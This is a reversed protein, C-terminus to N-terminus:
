AEIISSYGPWGTGTQAGGNRSATYFDAYRPPRLFHFSFDDGAAKGLFINWKQPITLRLSAGILDNKTNTTQLFLMDNYYPVEVEACKNTTNTFTGGLMYWGKQDILSVVGLNPMDNNHGRIHVKVRISGRWFRYIQGWKELGLFKQNPQPLGGSSDYAYMTGSAPAAVGPNYYPQYRHIVERVTRYKEGIVLNSTDYAKMTPHFPQFSRSFDARPNSQPIFDPIIYNDYYGGVEFDSAAAVYTNIYIPTTLAMDPQSWTLFKILLGTTQGDDYRRVINQDVYPITWEFECSGQIDIVTHYCNEWVSGGVGNDPDLYVVARISHFISAEIYVKVKISGWGYAFNRRVWDFYTASYPDPEDNYLAYLTNLDSANIVLPNGVLMPTGLVYKLDMEDINFGGVNPVVTIANEPDMCLKDSNDLGKGFNFGASVVLANKNGTQVSTPKSLGLTRAVTAVGKAIDSYTDVYQRMFPVSRLTSALQTTKILANSIVGKESKEKGEKSQTEFAAAAPAYAHPLFLEPELFQATIFVSCSDAGADQVNVLPNLVLIKVKAIEGLGYKQVQLARYPSIFPIDFVVADGSSASAIVHPYGSSGVVFDTQSPVSDIYAPGLAFNVCPEYHMILKGYLFRNSTIRMTIRIGGRFFKFDKIKEAIFSQSFLIDPFYYQALVTNISQGTNWSITGIRYERSLAGNLDYTELNCVQHPQQFVESGGASTDIPSIDQYSGLRVQQSDQPENTARDTFEEHRSSISNQVNDAISIENFKVDKSQTVFFSYMPKKKLPHYKSDHYYYYTHIESEFFSKLHPTRENVVNRLMTIYKDFEEKTFHSMELAFCRCESMLVVNEPVQSKYWYTAEVVVDLNLPAKCEGTDFSFKRGLYRIDTLTDTGEFIDKSWHTYEIGFRRMYHSSLSSSSIGPVSCTIVNDDGYVCMEFQDEMLNLDETLIIFTMAINQLSNYIATFFNGSPNSDKVYYLKDGCIHLANFIHEFLLKRVRKNVEGDDYWMNIFKLIIRGIYARVRGDFRSYDGAIVSGKHKNLRLYLYLWDRSHANIGVNIPKVSAQSQVYSSFDLFYKRGLFLYHLPCSSFLRAKGKEVKERPLTEDKLIDAWVVEIQKGNRLDEEMNDLIVLFEDSFEFHDEDRELFPMKGKTRGLCYPYGPSTSMSISTVEGDNMGNLCEYFSFLRNQEKPPYLKMFYAILAEENFPVPEMEEQVFKNLALNLPSVVEGQKNVFDNLHTPIKKPEGYWGYFSSRKFKTRRPHFFAKEPAVLSHVKLPFETINSQTTFSLISNFFSKTFTIATSYKSGKGLHMGIVYVQGQKGSIAVVSGSQGKVTDYYYNLPHEMVFTTGVSEYSIYSTNIAKTATMITTENHEDLHLLNIPYGQVIDFVDKDEIVYKYIAPPLNQGKPLRCIVMDQPQNEENTVQIPDDFEHITCVGNKWTMCFEVADGQTVSLYFHAPMVIYGDKLHFANTNECKYSQMSGDSQKKFSWAEIHVVSNIVKNLASMYFNREDSNTVFERDVKDLKRIKATRIKGKHTNSPHRVNFKKDFTQTVLQPFLFNYVLNGFSSCSYIILAVLIFFFIYFFCMQEENLNEFYNTICWGIISLRDQVEDMLNFKSDNQTHFIQDLFTPTYKYKDNMEIQVKRLRIIERVLEKANYHKGEMSIDFNCKDVRFVNDHAYAECKQERHLVLHFRRVMAKPDTLGVCFACKEIGNNAINTSGFIFDSDFFVTGKTGFAQPLNFTSTNVMSIVSSAEAARKNVDQEMFMDDLEVFKQQAYKEWFDDNKNYVYVMEPSFITEYFLHSLANEFFKTTASKGVEPPGTFLIFFPETRSHTTGLLSSCMKSTKELKLYKLSFVKQLFSPMTQMQSDRYLSSAFDFKEIVENMLRKDTIFAEDRQPLNDVYKIIDYLNQAFSSFNSDLPDYCIFTRVIMRCISVIMEMSETSLKKVHNMYVFQANAQRLDAETMNKLPTYSIFNVFNSFADKFLNDSQIEFNDGFKEEFSTNDENNIRWKKYAEYQERNLLYKKNGVLVEAKPEKLMEYLGSFDILSINLLNDSRSVFFNSLWELCSDRNGKYAHYCIHIISKVELLALKYEPQLLVKWDSFMAMHKKFKDQTDEVRNFFKEYFVCFKKFYEYTKIVISFYKYERLMYILAFCSFVVSCLFTVDYNMSQTVFDNDYYYKNDRAKNRELERKTKVKEKKILINKDTTKYEKWFTSVLKDNIHNYIEEIPENNIFRAQIQPSRMENKFVKIRELRMVERESKSMQSITFYEETYSLIQRRVELMYNLFLAFARSENNVVVYLFSPPIWPVIWSMQKIDKLPIKLYPTGDKPVYCKHRFLSIIEQLDCNRTSFDKLISKIKKFGLQKGKTDMKEVLDFFFNPNKNSDYSFLPKNKKTEELHKQAIEPFKIRPNEEFQHHEPTQYTIFPIVVKDNNHYLKLLLECCYKRGEINDDCGVGSKIQEIQQKFWSNVFSVQRSYEKFNNAEVGNKFDKKEFSVLSGLLSYMKGYTVAQLWSPIKIGEFSEGEFVPLSFFFDLDGKKVDQRRMFVKNNKKPKSDFNSGYACYDVDEYSIKVKSSVVMKNKNKKEKSQCEFPVCIYKLPKHYSIIKM